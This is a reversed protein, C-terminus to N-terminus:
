IARDDMRSTLEVYFCCTGNCDIPVLLYLGTVNSSLPLVLLLFCKRRRTGTVRLEDTRGCGTFESTLVGNFCALLGFSSV